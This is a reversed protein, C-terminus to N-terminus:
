ERAFKSESSVTDICVLNRLCNPSTWTPDTCSDRWFTGDSAECLGSSLCTDLQSANYGQANGVPVIACCMSTAGAVANCPAYAGDTVVSGDPIYCSPSVM